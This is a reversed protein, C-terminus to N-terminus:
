GKWIWSESAEFGGDTATGEEKGGEGGGGGVWGFVGDGMGCGGFESGVWSSLGLVGSGAAAGVHVLAGDVLDM